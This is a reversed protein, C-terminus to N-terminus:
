PVQMGKEPSILEKYLTETEPSLPTNFQDQVIKKCRKYVEHVMSSRGLHHFVLMQARYAPEWTQEENLIQYTIELAKEFSETKILINVLKDAAMLFQQHYYQEEIMMWERIENNAFYRGQYLKLARTLSDQSGEKAADVFLDVDLIIRANPNLRYLDQRREVFFAAENRPRDPELVQNVTNYVVKMYNATKDTSIGPWLMDSIKEKYLWKDRNNVLLQFFQRAKERKWEQTEIKQDGRWVWFEGLTQVRLSYGPHYQTQLIGRNRLLSAIFDSDIGNHYAAILLPYFMETDQSGLFSRRTVLFLYDFEKIISLSKELYSFATNQYGQYWAKLALWLRSACLTFSDQVRIASTEATTLYQQAAEFQRNLVASAGITLQILVSMWEDGAKKAIELSKLAVNEAEQYQGEYGLARCMGWLPEVHIRVIDVTEIAERYNDKAQEIDSSSFPMQDSLLLAHGLRMLGVAQVFKSGMMMGLDIGLRAFKEASKEDGSLAYFLSLLLSSERHFRQPRELPLSPFKGERELLLNIGKKFRGTRMYVRAQIFDTEMELDPLLGKAKILLQESNDPNGLNLQNEAILVLLDAVEERMEEPNLLSLAEQLLRDGNNPRITDLFVQGQGRLARSIGLPNKQKRFLREANHYNELAEEFNGFLRNVEGSLYILYPYNVRINVPIENIWYNVSEQRGDQILAKGISTLIQNIQQYDGAALSHFIAEEWYEHARFYSAIKLHLSELQASERRIRSLLFERFMQHYRFVGPRLEEIFLGTIDLQHLIQDSNEINLLFDCSESELKSLISTKLLFSQLEPALGLFVEEALYEFLTAKSHREDELVERISLDPNNQLTQWVMQLGIAWGETKEMLLAIDPESLRMGYQQDFLQNVEDRTFALIDKTLVLVEGKARWKNIKPFEAAFRTAIILHLHSPTHEVLWDVYGVVEPHDSVRHFDDLILYIDDQIQSSLTNVFSILAEKPTSDTMDLIRLADDGLLHNNQNFATFLNALFIKPDRDTGSITFWYVSKELGTIFSIVSTSKGYGTGAELITLPYNESRKLQDLVRQRSLIRSRQAPPNLQSLIILNRISM